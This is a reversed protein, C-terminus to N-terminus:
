FKRKSLLMVKIFSYAGGYLMSILFLRGVTLFTFYSGDSIIGHHASLYPLLWLVAQFISFQNVIPQRTISLLGVVIVLLPTEETALMMRSHFLAGLSLGAFSSGLLLLFSYGFYAVSFQQFFGSDLLYILVPMSASILSVFIGIVFLFAVYTGYYLVHSKARLILLQETTEDTWGNSAFGLWISIIFAFIEILLIDSIFDSPGGRAMTYIVLQLFVLVALPMIYKPSHIFTFLHFYLISTIKKM